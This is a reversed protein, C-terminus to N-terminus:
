FWGALSELHILKEPIDTAGCDRCTVEGMLMVEPTGLVAHPVCIWGSVHGCNTCQIARSARQACDEIECMPAFDLRAIKMRDAEYPTPVPDHMTM